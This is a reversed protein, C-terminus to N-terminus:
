TSPVRKRIKSTSKKSGQSSTFYDFTLALVLLLGSAIQVWYPSIQLVTMGNNFSNIILLGLFAGGMGGSGGGFSIGGLIAATIGAFNQYKIGQVTASKLRGTVLCGAIASLVASNIFLSYSIKRPNLGALRSATPNGGILYISRGFATKSLMFGYVAFAALAIFISIPIFTFIKGTGLFTLVPDKFPISKGSNIVYSIGECISGTALTAIFSQFGLKHVLTANLYGIVAAVLLTLPLAFYLPWGRQTMLSGLIIGCLTGVYGASFDIQGSIILCSAGIALLAVLVMSSLITKINVLALFSFDSLVTFVIIMLVFLTLLAFYKSRIFKSVKSESKNGM